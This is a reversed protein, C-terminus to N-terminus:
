GGRFFWDTHIVEFAEDLVEKIYDGYLRDVRMLMQEFRMKSAAEDVEDRRGRSFTHRTNPGLYEMKPQWTQMDRYAEEGPHPPNDFYYLFQAKIEPAADDPRIVTILVRYTIGNNECKVRAPQAKTLIEGERFHIEDYTQVLGGSKVTDVVDLDYDLFSVEDFVTNVSQVGKIYRNSAPRSKTSIQDALEQCSKKIEKIAEEVDFEPEM